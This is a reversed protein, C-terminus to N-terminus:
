QASVKVENNILTEYIKKTFELADENDGHVCITDVKIDFEKGDISVCKNTKQMDIVRKIAFESDKIIAGDMSRPTLKGDSMYSRDAFVESKVPYGRKIAEAYLVSGSLAYLTIGLNLQELGDIIARSLKLDRSVMNYLAGHLKVHKVRDGLSRAIADLAGIQYLMYYKAEDPSIDMERRGFGALDPLGPHAGIQVKNDIALKINERMILADGAHFGCAINASSIYKMIQSSESMRYIGFSEGLDCNLDVKM